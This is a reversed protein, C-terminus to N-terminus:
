RFGVGIDKCINRRRIWTTCGIDRSEVPQALLASDHISNAIALQLRSTM